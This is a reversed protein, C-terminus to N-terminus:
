CDLLLVVFVTVAFVFNLFSFPVVHGGGRPPYEIYGQPPPPTARGRM